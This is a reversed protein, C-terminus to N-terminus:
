NLLVVFRYQYLFSRLPDFRRPPDIGSQLFRDCYRSAVLFFLVCVAFFILVLGSFVLVKELTSQEIMAVCTGCFGHDMMSESITMVDGQVMGHGMMQGGLFPAINMVGACLIVAMFSILAGFALFKRM